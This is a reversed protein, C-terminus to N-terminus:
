NFEVTKKHNKQKLKQKLTYVFAIFWFTVTAWGLTFGLINGVLHYALEFFVLSIFTLFSGTISYGSLANRNKIVARLMWLLAIFNIISAVDLLLNAFALTEM